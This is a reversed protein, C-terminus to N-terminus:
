TPNQDMNSSTQPTHLLLKPLLTAEVEQHTDAEEEEICKMASALIILLLMESALEVVEKAEMTPHVEAEEMILLVEILIAEVEQFHGVEAEEEVEKTLLPTTAKAKDVKSM